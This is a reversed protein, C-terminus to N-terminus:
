LFQANVNVIRQWLGEIMLTSYKISKVRVNDGRQWLGEIMLTSYKIASPVAYRLTAM